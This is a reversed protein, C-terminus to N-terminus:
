RDAVKWLRRRPVRGDNSIEAVLGRGGRREDHYRRWPMWGDALYFGWNRRKPGHVILSWSRRGLLGTITHCEDPHMVRLSWPRRVVRHGRRVTDFADPYEVAVSAYRVADRTDAREEVYGGAVILSVFWWPHDHLDRGPDPADMRHLFIGGLRHHEIGWRDLYIRGDDRRLRMRASM